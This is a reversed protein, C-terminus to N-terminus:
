THSLKSRIAYGSKSGLQRRVRARLQEAMYTKPRDRCSPHGLGEAFTRADGTLRGVGEQLKGGAKRAIGEARNEDM